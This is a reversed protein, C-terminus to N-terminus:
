IDYIWAESDEEEQEGGRRRGSKKGKQNNRQQQQTKQTSSKGGATDVVINTTTVMTSDNSKSHQKSTNSSSHNNNYSKNSTTSAPSSNSSKSGTKTGTVDPISGSINNTSSKSNHHPTPTVVSSSTSDTHDINPILESKTTINETKNTINDSVPALNMDMVNAAHKARLHIFFEVQKSTKGRMPSEILGLVEYNHGRAWEAISTSINLLREKNNVKKLKEGTEFPPKILAIVEGDARMWRYVMLLVEELPAFTVDIVCMDIPEPLSELTRTDTQPM